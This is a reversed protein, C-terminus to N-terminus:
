VINSNTMELNTICERHKTVSIGKTFVDTPIKNTPMYELDIKGEAFADRIFHHRVDLRKTQSHYKNQQALKIAGQNDNFLKVSSDGIVGIFELISRLYLAEKTAESLAM